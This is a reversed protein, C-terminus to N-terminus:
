DRMVLEVIVVSALEDDAGVVHEVDAHAVAAAAAVGMAVRLVGVHKEALDQADIRARAPRAVRRAVRELVLGAVLARDPHEPQPVRPLEREVAGGLVHPDAIHALAEELLDVERAVAILFARVPTPVTTLALM